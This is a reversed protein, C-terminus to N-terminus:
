FNFYTRDEVKFFIGEYHAQLALDPAPTGPARPTRCQFTAACPSRTQGEHWGLGWSRGWSQGAAQSAQPSEFSVLEAGDM